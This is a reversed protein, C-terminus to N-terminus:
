YSSCHVGSVISGSASSAFCCINSGSDSCTIIWKIPGNNGAQKIAEINTPPSFPSSHPPNEGPIVPSPLFPNIGRTQGALTGQVGVKPIYYAFTSDSADLWYTLGNSQIFPLIGNTFSDLNIKIAAIFGGIHSRHKKKPEPTPAM